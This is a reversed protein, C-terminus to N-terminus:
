HPCLYLVLPGSEAVVPATWADDSSGKIRHSGGTPDTEWELGQDWSYRRRRPAVYSALMGGGGHDGEGDESRTPKPTM